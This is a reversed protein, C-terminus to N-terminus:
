DRAAPLHNVLKKLTRGVDWTPKDRRYVWLFPTRNSLYFYNIGLVNNNYNNINNVNNNYNNVIYLLITIYKM